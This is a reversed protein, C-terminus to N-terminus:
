PTLSHPTRRFLKTNSDGFPLNLTNRYFKKMEYFHFILNVYGKLCWCFSICVVNCYLWRFIQLEVSNICVSSCIQAQCDSLTKYVAVVDGKRVVYYDSGEEMMAFSNGSFFFAAPNLCNQTCIDWFSDLETSLRSISASWNSTLDMLRCKPVSASAKLIYYCSSLGWVGINHVFVWGRLYATEYLRLPLNGWIKFHM